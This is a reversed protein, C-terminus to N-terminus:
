MNFALSSNRISCIVGNAGWQRILIIILPFISSNNYVENKLACRCVYILPGPIRCNSGRPVVSVVSVVFLDNVTNKALQPRLNSRRTLIGARQTLYNSWQSVHATSAFSVSSDYQETSKSKSRQKIQYSRQHWTAHRSLNRYVWLNTYNFRRIKM